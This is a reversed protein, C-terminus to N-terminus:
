VHEIPAVKIIQIVLNIDGGKNIKTCSHCNEVIATKYINIAQVYYNYLQYSHAIVDYNSRMGFILHHTKYLPMSSCVKCLLYDSTLTNQKKVHNVGM